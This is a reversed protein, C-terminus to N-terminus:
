STSPSSDADRVVSDATGPPGAAIGVSASLFVEVSGAVFPERMAALIRDGFGILDEEALGPALIM